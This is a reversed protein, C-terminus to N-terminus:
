AEVDLRVTVSEIAARIEAKLANVDAVPGAAVADVLKDITVAQAKIGAELGRVRKGLDILISAPKWETNGATGWGEPVGVVGDTDWVATCIDKSSMGAM